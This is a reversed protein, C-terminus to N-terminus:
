LHKRLFRGTFWRLLVMAYNAGALYVGTAFLLHVAVFVAGVGFPFILPEKWAYALYGCLAIAPLGLLYSLAMLSLGLYFRASPKRRFIGLNAEEALARQGFRTGALSEAIKRVIPM